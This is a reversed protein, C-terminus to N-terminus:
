SPAQNPAHLCALSNCAGHSPVTPATESPDGNLLACTWRHAHVQPKPASPCMRLEQCISTSGLTHDNPRAPHNIKNLRSPQLIPGTGNSEWWRGWSQGQILLWCMALMYLWDCPDCLRTRIMSGAARCVSVRYDERSLSLGKGEEQGSWLCGGAAGTSGCILLSLNRSGCIRCAHMGSLEGEGALQGQVCCAPSRIYPIYKESFTHTLNPM